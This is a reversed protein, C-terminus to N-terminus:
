LVNESSLLRTLSITGSSRIGEFSFTEGILFFSEEEPSDLIESESNQLEKIISQFNTGLQEVKTVFEDTYTLQYSEGKLTVTMEM